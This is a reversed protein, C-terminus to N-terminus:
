RPLVPFDLRFHQKIVLFLHTTTVIKAISFIWDVPAKRLPHWANNAEIEIIVRASFQPNISNFYITALFLYNRSISLQSFYITTPL